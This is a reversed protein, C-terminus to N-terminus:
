EGTLNASGVGLVNIGVAVGSASAVPRNSRWPCALATSTLVAAAAIGPRDHRASCFPPAGARRRRVPQTRDRHLPAAKWYRPHTAAQLQGAPCGTLLQHPPLRLRVDRSRDHGRPLEEAQPNGAGRGLRPSKRERPANSRTMRRPSRDARGESAHWSEEAVPWGMLSGSGGSWSGPWVRVLRRCSPRM